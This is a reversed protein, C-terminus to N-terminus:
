NGFDAKEFASCLATAFSVSTGAKYFAWTKINNTATEENFDM